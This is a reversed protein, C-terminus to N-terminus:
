FWVNLKNVGIFQNIIICLDFLIKICLYTCYSCDDRPEGESEVIKTGNSVNLKVIRRCCFLIWAKSSKDYILKAYNAITKEPSQQLQAIVPFLESSRICNRCASHACMKALAFLVIKLPSESVADRRPPNLAATSCELVVKLLAQM